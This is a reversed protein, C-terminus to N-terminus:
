PSARASSRARSRRSPCTRSAPSGGGARVLRMADLVARGPLVLSAKRGPREDFTAADDTRGADFSLGLAACRAIIVRFDFDLVNWGTIVDPDRRAIRGALPRRPAFVRRSLGRHGPRQAGQGPGPPFAGRRERGLSGGAVAPSAEEALSVAVVGGERDTEIDIALWRLGGQSRARKWSPSSSSSTSGSARGRRAACSVPGRIGRAALAEDARM